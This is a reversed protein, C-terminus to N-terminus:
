RLMLSTAGAPHDSSAPSTLGTGTTIAPGRRRGSRLHREDYILMWDACEARATRIWREADCNVRPTRPPTKVVRVGESAFIGRLRPHVQRRRGPDPRWRWRSCCTCASSSSRKQTFSIAPWCATLRLACSRGGPHVSMGRAPCRARRDAARERHPGARRNGRTLQAGLDCMAHARKLRAMARNLTDIAEHLVEEGPRGAPM